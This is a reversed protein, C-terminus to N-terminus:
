EKKTYKTKRSGYRSEKGVRREESRIKYQLYDSYNVLKQVEVKHGVAISNCLKGLLEEKVKLEGITDLLNDTSIERPLCVPNTVSGLNEPVDFMSETM